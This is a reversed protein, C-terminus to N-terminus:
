SKSRIAWKAAEVLGLQRHWSPESARFHVFSYGDECEDWGEPAKHTRVVVISLVEYVEATDDDAYADSIAEMLEATNRGILTADVSM